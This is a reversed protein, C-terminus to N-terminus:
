EFLEKCQKADHTKNICTQMTTGRTKVHTEVAHNIDSIITMGLILCVIAGAIVLAIQADKDMALRSIDHEVTM